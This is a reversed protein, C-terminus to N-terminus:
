ADLVLVFSLLSSSSPSSSQRGIICENSGDEIGISLNEIMVTFPFFKSENRDTTEESM